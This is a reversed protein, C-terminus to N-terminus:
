SFCHNYHTNTVAFRNLLRDAPEALKNFSATELFLHPTPLIVFLGALDFTPGAKSSFTARTSGSASLLGPLAM